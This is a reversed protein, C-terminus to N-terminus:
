LPLEQTVQFEGERQSFLRRRYSSEHLISATRDRLRVCVTNVSTTLADSPGM